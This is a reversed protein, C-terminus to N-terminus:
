LHMKLGRVLRSRFKWFDKFDMDNFGRRRAIEKVEIAINQQTTGTVDIYRCECSAFHCSIAKRTEQHMPHRSTMSGTDPPKNILMSHMAMINNGTFCQVHDLLEPHLFYQEFVDDWVIDQIKNVIRENPIEEQNRKVLSIDKMVTIGGRNVKNECIDIFRKKFQDLLTEDILCRIVIYGNDEFFNRQESSLIGNNSSITYKYQKLNSM